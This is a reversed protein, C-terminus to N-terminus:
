NFQLPSSILTVWWFPSAKMKQRIWNSGQQRILHDQYIRPIFRLVPLILIVFEETESRENKM